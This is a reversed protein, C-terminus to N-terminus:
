CGVLCLRSFRWRSSLDGVYCVVMRLELCQQPAPMESLSANSGGLIYQEDCVQALLMVSGAKWVSYLILGYMVVNLSHRVMCVVTLMGVILFVSVAGLLLAPNGM